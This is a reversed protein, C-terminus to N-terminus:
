LRNMVSEETRKYEEFLRMIDRMDVQNVREV